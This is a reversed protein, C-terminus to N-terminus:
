PTLLTLTTIIILLLVVATCATIRIATRKTRLDAADREQERLAALLRENELDRIRVISWERPAKQAARVIEAPTLTNM